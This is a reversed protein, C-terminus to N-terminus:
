STWTPTSALADPARLRGAACVVVAGAVEGAADVLSRMMEDMDAAYRAQIVRGARGARAATTYEARAAALRDALHRRRAEPTM